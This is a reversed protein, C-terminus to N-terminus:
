RVPFTELLSPPTIVAAYARACETNRTRLRIDNLIPVTHGKHLPSPVFFLRVGSLDKLINMITMQNNVSEARQAV